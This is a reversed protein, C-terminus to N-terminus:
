RSPSDWATLPNGPLGKLSLSTGRGSGKGCRANGNEVFLAAWHLCTQDNIIRTHHPLDCPADQFPQIELNDFGFVARLRQLGTPVAQRIRHQEVPIHGDHVAVFEEAIQVPQGAAVLRHHHEARGIFWIERASRAPVLSYMMFGNSLSM